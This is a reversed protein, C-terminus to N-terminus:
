CNSVPGLAVDVGKKATAATADIAEKAVRKTACGVEGVSPVHDPTVASATEAAGTAVSSVVGRGQDFGRALSNVAASAPPGVTSELAHKASDLGSQVTHTASHLAGEAYGEVTGAAQYATSAAVGAVDKGLYQWHFCRVRRHWAGGQLVSATTGKAQDVLRGAKDAGLQQLSYVQEVGTHALDQLQATTNAGVQVVRQEAGQLAARTRQWGDLYAENTTARLQAGYRGLRQTSAVLFGLATTAAGSGAELPLRALRRSIAVAAFAAGGLTSALVEAVDRAGRFVSAATNITNDYLTPLLGRNTTPWTSSTRTTRGTGNTVTSLVDTAGQAVSHAANALRETAINATEQARHLTNAVTNKTAKLNDAARDRHSTPLHLVAQLVCKVHAAAEQAQHAAVKPADIVTEKAGTAVSVAAHKSATLVADGLERTKEVVKANERGSSLASDVVTRVDNPQKDMQVNIRVKDSTEQVQVFEGAHAMAHEFTDSHEDVITSPKNISKLACSHILSPQQCSFTGSLLVPVRKTKMM